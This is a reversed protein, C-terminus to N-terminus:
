IDTLEGLMSHALTKSIRVWVFQGVLKEPGPFHILKNTRTRGSLRTEDSKSVGEVLVQYVKGLEMATNSARVSDQLSLLRDFRELAVDRPVPKGMKEAKIGPRPSYIFSFMAEFKVKEALDMTAQFDYETEGPFGVIIDTTISVDPVARRLSDVKELYDGTTYGRNMAALINDSGSQVPLHIHECVKDLDSVAAMLESSFDKPHSTVFRIRKLGSVANIRSLLVPFSM